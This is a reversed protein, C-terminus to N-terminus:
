GDCRRARSACRWRSCRAGPSKWRWFSCRRWCTSRGAAQVVLRDLSEKTVTVIHRALMPMVRPALAPAITRRQLKWAEGESLLLGDGSIPRLIRISAPSRRYNATNDMLVHRIADPTNVLVNIRGLFPRVIADDHYAAEPWMLLANERIVRLFARM